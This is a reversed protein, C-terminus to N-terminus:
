SGCRNAVRARITRSPRRGDAALRDPDRAAASGPGPAGTAELIEMALARLEARLDPDRASMAILRQSESAIFKMDWSSM